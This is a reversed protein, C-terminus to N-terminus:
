FINLIEPKYGKEHALQEEKFKKKVENLKKAYEIVIEQKIKQKEKWQKDLQDKDQMEYKRYEAINKEWFMKREGAFSIQSDVTERRRKAEELVVDLNQM